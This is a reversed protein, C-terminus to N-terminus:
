VAKVKCQPGQVADQQVRNMSSGTVHLGLVFWTPLLGSVLLGTVIQHRACSLSRM